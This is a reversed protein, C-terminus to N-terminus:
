FFSLRSFLTTSLPSPSPFSPFAEVEGDYVSMQSRQHFLRGWRTPTAGIIKCNGDLLPPHYSLYGPTLKLRYIIQSAGPTKFIASHWVISKEIHLLPESELYSETPVTTATTYIRLLKLAKKDSENDLVVILGSLLIFTCYCITNCATHNTEPGSSNTQSTRGIAWTRSSSVLDVLIFALIIM